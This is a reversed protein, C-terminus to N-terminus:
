KQRSEIFLLVILVVEIAKDIFGIENRAGMVAWALITIITFGILGWRVLSRNKTVLEIPLPLYLAALLGLYGLGNFVFMVGGVMGITLQEYALFLHVLATAITLVIISIQLIRIRSM